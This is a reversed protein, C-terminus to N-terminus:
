KKLKLRYFFDEWNENGVKEKTLRKIIFSESIKVENEGKKFYRKVLFFPILMYRIQDGVGYYLYNKGNHKIAITDLIAYDEYIFSCQKSTLTLVANGEGAIPTFQHNKLFNNFENVRIGNKVIYEILMSPSLLYVDVNQNEDFFKNRWDKYIFDKLEIEELLVIRVRENIHSASNVAKLYNLKDQPDLFIEKKFFWGLTYEPKEGGRLTAYFNNRTYPLLEKIYELYEKSAAGIIFGGFNNKIKNGIHNGLVIGLKPERPTYTGILEALSKLLVFLSSINPLNKSFEMLKLFIVVMISVVLDKTLNLLNMSIDNKFYYKISTLSLLLLTFLFILIDERILDWLFRLKRKGSESKLLLILMIILVFVILLVIIEQLNFKLELSASSNKQIM